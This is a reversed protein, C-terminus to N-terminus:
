AYTQRSNYRKKILSNIRNAEISIECLMDTPSVYYGCFFLGPVPSEEGTSTPTGEEDFASPVNKLFDNVLPPYGMALVHADFDAEKEDDFRIRNGSFSEVGQYVTIHRERIM